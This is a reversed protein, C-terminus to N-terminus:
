LNDKEDIAREKALRLAAVLREAEAINDTTEIIGKLGERIKKEDPLENDMEGEINISLKSQVTQLEELSLSDVDHLMGKILIESNSPNEFTNM